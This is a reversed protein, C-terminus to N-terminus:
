KRPLHALFERCVAAPDRRDVDVARNMARMDRETVRGALRDLAGNIWPHQLLARTRVLPAADYPPFYRRNDELAALGLADIQASTADGAIVDVQGEAVAKYILSLDMARPEGRFSLGYAQRLGPYGDARQLFEYGFGPTWQAAVKRLDEISKLAYRNADGSRVLIAFTNNFGLPALATIGVAAYQARVQEFAARPDHEVDQHFVATAATGTYEVYVDIDGGRLARDCIFTGGLDLKRVVPHGEDELAQALLEGLIVQETFNKSGVIVAGGGSAAFLSRALFVALALGALGAAVPRRFATRGPTRMRRELWSLGGDAVLALVAAPIAGALITPSDVMSLGRFIYEGLGGAGIAAAITATGVGIVTAVRLGAVISPMALPLEVMLLLQRSTMGMAVGAEVVARDLGQLGGVTTRVVPLLAYLTLAVLATRPGVGGLLPLPLLFGFLALSPITQAVNAIFLLPRGLRPRRFALIGAPVGILAAVGTSVFVLVIHQETLRALEVRHAAWFHFLATM